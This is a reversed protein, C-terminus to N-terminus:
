DAGHGGRIVKARADRLEERILDEARRRERTDQAERELM